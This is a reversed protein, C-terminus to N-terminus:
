IFYILLNYFVFWFFILEFNNLNSINENKGLFTINFIKNNM